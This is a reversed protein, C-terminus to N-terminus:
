AEEFCGAPWWPGGSDSWGASGACGPGRFMVPLLAPFGTMGMSRVWGGDSCGQGMLCWRHISALLALPILLAGPLLFAVAQPLSPLKGVPGFICAGILLYAATYWPLLEIVPVQTLGFVLLTLAPVMVCVSAFTWPRRVPQQQM